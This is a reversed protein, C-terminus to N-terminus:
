LKSDNLEVDMALVGNEQVFGKVKENVICVHVPHKAYVALDDKSGLEVVLIHSFGQNRDTTFTPGFNLSKICEIKGHMSSFAEGLSRIHTDNTTELFKFLVVHQIM